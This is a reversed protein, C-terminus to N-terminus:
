PFQSVYMGASGRSYMLCLIKDGLSVAKDITVEIDLIKTPNTGVYNDYYYWARTNNDHDYYYFFSVRGAIGDGLTEIIKNPHYPETIFPLEISTNIFNIGDSSYKGIRCLWERYKYMLVSNNSTAPLTGVKTVIVSNWNGLTCKFIDRYENNNGTNTDRTSYFIYMYENWFYIQSVTMIDSNYFNTITLTHTHSPSTFTTFALKRNSASTEEEGVICFIEKTLGEIKLIGRAIKYPIAVLGYQGQLQWSNGDTSRLMTNKDTVLFTGNFFAIQPPNRANTMVNTKRTWNIGDTSTHCAITSNGDYSVLMFIGNGAEIDHFYDVNVQSYHMMGPPVLNNDMLRYHKDNIYVYAQDTNLTRTPYLVVMRDTGQGIYLPIQPSALDNIDTYINYTKTEVATTQIKLQRLANIQM